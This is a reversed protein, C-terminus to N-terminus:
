PPRNNVSRVRKSVTQHYGLSCAFSGIAIVYLSYGFDPRKGNGRRGPVKAPPATFTSLPQPSPDDDFAELNGSLLHQTFTGLYQFTKFIDLYM